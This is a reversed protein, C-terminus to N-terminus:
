FIRRKDSFFHISFYNESIIVIHTTDAQSFSPLGLFALVGGLFMETQGETSGWTQEMGKYTHMLLEGIAQMQSPTKSDIYLNEAAFQGALDLTKQGGEEVIGEYAAYRGWAGQGYVNRHLWSRMAGWDKHRAKYKGSKADKVIQNKFKKNANLGSGFVRRFLLANSYGVLAANGAFVGNSIKVATDHIQALEKDTPPRNTRELHLRSLNDIIQDYNHRSEVGAEYFAGTMLRRGATLGGYIQDAKSIKNLMSLAASSKQAYATSRLAAIRKLNNAAKPGIMFSATGATAMESLVAGAVFSLGQSFQETWFNAAGPGFVKQKFNYDREMSNHYVPFKNDLAKNFDDLSRQFDNNFFKNWNSAAFGNEYADSAVRGLGDVLGYTSGIIHTGIKPALKVGYSYWAKEAFSQGDARKDDLNRDSLSFGGPILRNYEDWSDQDIQYYDGGMNQQRASGGRQIDQLIDLSGPFGGDMEFPQTPTVTNILNNTDLEQHGPQILDENGEELGGTQKKDIM